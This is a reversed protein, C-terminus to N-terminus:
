EYHDVAPPAPVLAGATGVTSQFARAWEGRRVMDDLADNVFARLEIDGKPVGIGYPETRFPNGTLAFRKDQRALGLLIVDDTTMADVRGARLEEFCESYKDRTISIDAKPAANQLNILSTSGNVSCVKRGNVDDVGRITGNDILERRTLVDQGAIYYPGAFDVLQKRADTITYTSIILDVAGSQLLSERNKSLAEVFTIRALPDDTPFLRKTIGKAIEIDFGSLTGTTADLLGFLPVDEKVGITIHKTTRIRELRSVANPPTPVPLALTNRSPAGSSSCSALIM